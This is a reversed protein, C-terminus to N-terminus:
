IGKDIPGVLDSLLFASQLIQGAEPYIEFAKKVVAKEAAKKAAAFEERTATKRLSRLKDVEDLIVDSVDHLLGRIRHDEMWAAHNIELEVM